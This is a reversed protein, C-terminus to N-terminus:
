LKKKHTHRFKFYTIGKYFMKISNSIKQLSCFQNKHKLTVLFLYLFIHQPFLSVCPLFKM